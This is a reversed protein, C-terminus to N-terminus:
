IVYLLDQWCNLKPMAMAAPATRTGGTCLQVDGSKTAIRVSGRGDGSRFSLKTGPGYQPEWPKPGFCNDIRGSFSQVDVNAAPISAFAFKITGSVSEAEIDADPAMSFNATVDGSISKFRGRTLTGLDAKVTGSVTGLEAEGSGGSLQVGGSVTQVEIWKATPASM